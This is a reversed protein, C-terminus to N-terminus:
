RKVKKSKVKEFHQYDKTRTWDGGWTFGHKKFLKYCLDNRTIKYRFTKTRDAYPKGAKPEIHLTGDKRRKVYPNYLTNIDIALGRSHSSLKKTGSVLRFNFCSTNNDAMSLEDQADYDDILVIREIPYKADFLAHFIEVLDRSIAKNCVLEGLQIKGELTYHLVKVYRLDTRPITCNAKYSKKWMRKFVADSIKEVVFCKSVGYNNVSQLGVQRGAMWQTLTAEDQEFGKRDGDAFCAVSALCLMYIACFLRKKM